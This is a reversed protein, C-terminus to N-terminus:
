RRVMLDYDYKDMSYQKMTCESIFGIARAWRIARLDTTKVTIQLRHLGMSLKCIDTFAIGVKTTAIPRRRATDGIVSWMEGVGDWLKCCGFVAVPEGHLLCTVAFGHTSQNDLMKRVGVMKQTSLGSFEGGEIAFADEIYFKSFTVGNIRPLHENITDLISYM